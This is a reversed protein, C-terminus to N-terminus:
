SSREQFENLKGTSLFLYYMDVAQRKFLRLYTWFMIFAAMSYGTLVYCVALDVKSGILFYLAFVRVLLYFIFTGTVNRSFGALNVFHQVRKTLEPYNACIYTYTLWYYDRQTIEFGYVSDLKEKIAQRINESLPKKYSLTTLVNIIAALKRYIYFITNKVWGGNTNERPHGFLNDTPYQLVRRVIHKALFSSFSAMMHGALYCFILFIIFPIIGFGLASNSSLFEMFHSLVFQYDESGINHLSENKMFYRLIKSGDYDIIFLTFFFFGPLIYGFVDYLGLPQRITKIHETM